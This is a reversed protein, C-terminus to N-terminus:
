VLTVDDFRVENPCTMNYFLSVQSSGAPVTFTQSVM